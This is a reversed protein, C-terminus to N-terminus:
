NFRTEPAYRAFALAVGVLLASSLFLPFSLGYQDALLGLMIPGVVYGADALTRYTSMAAAGHAKASIDAAYASPAAGSVSSAVGWIVTAVLFWVFNPAFSFVIFAVAVALTAPVIVPKRGIRDVMVGAPYTVLLGAVSGVAMCFGIQSAELNLRTTGVIPVIAFLGGTRVVANIFGISSVLRFGIPKLVAKLQKVYPLAAGASAAQALQRTEPVGFWGVIAALGSAIGYAAFPVALGYTEALYGGPLPGIGVAFLFVGQYIAMVRGRRAVTTIDSLIIMGATLTLGAGFGAVFRALILGEFSSAYACWFNGAASLLGGLALVSRRGLLDALKGSPLGSLLRALGYVAITSGIAVQSVGFENAYLPLVPIIAGFGLQNVGILLCMWILVRGETVPPKAVSQDNSNEIM